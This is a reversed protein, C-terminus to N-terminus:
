DQSHESLQKAMWSDAADVDLFVEVGPGGLSRKAQLKNLVSSVLIALPATTCQRLDTMFGVFVQATEASQVSLETCDSFIVFYPCVAKAAKAKATFDPAFRTLLDQGWYGSLQLHLIREHADFRIEYM